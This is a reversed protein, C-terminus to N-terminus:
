INILNITQFGITTMIREVVNEDLSKKDDYVVQTKPMEDFPNEAIYKRAKMWRCFNDLRHNHTAVTSSKVGQKIQGKGVIRKRRDLREDFATIIKPSLEELRFDPMLKKFVHLTGEYGRITAPSVRRSCKEEKIFEQYYNEFNQDFTVPLNELGTDAKNVLM